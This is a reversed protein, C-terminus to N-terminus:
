YGKKIRRVTEVTRALTYFPSLPFDHAHIYKIERGGFGKKFLTLGRWPHNPKDEPAIGWLNYVKIGRKQAEIIAKWQLLYSAPIKTSVSAGHHYFAQNGWFLIIAGALVEGQHERGELLHKAVAIGQYDGISM